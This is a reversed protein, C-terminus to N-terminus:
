LRSDLRQLCECFRENSLTGPRQLQILKILDSGKLGLLKHLTLATVLSSRNIGAWCTILVNRNERAYGAAKEAAAMAVELTTRSPPQFSNDQFPAHWVDVDPFKRGPPQYEEACLVLLDFGADGVHNGVPPYSGQWLNDHIKNAEFDYRIGFDLAEGALLITM